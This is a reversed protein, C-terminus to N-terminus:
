DPNDKCIPHHDEGEMSGTDFQITSASCAYFMGSSSRVGQMDDQSYLKFEWVQDFTLDDNYFLKKNPPFLVDVNDAGRRGIELKKPCVETKPNGGTSSSSASVDDDATTPGGNVSMNPHLFPDPLDELEVVAVWDCINQTVDWSGHHGEGAVDIDKCKPIVSKKGPEMEMSTEQHETNFSDM